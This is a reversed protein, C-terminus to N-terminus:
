ILQLEDVKAQMKLQLKEGCGQTIMNQLFRSHDQIALIYEAVTLETPTYSGALIQCFCRGGYNDYCEKCDPCLDEPNVVETATGM